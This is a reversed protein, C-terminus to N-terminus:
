VEVRLASQAAIAPTYFSARVSKAVQPYKAALSRLATGQESLEYAKPLHLRIGDIIMPKLVDDPIGILFSPSHQLVAAVEASANMAERIKGYGLESKATANIWQRVESQISARDPNAQFNAHVTDAAESQLDFGAADIAAQSKDIISVTKGAVTRAADHKLVENRTPDSVLGEIKSLGDTLANHAHVIPDRASPHFRDPDGLSAMRQSNTRHTEIWRIANPLNVLSHPNLM